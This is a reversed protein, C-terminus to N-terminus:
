KLEMIGAMVGRKDGTRRHSFFLDSNCYTCIDSDIINENRIEKELLQIRIAKQMNVHWKEHMELVSDGFNERFVDAVEDGVEFHCVGISPGIGVLIDEACCSYEEIM